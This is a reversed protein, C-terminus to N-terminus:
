HVPAGRDNEPEFPFVLRKVEAVIVIPTGKVDVRLEVHLGGNPQSRDFLATIAEVAAHPSNLLDATGAIVDLRGEDGVMDPPVERTEIRANRDEGAAPPTGRKPLEFSGTEPNYTAGIRTLLAAFPNPAPKRDSSM